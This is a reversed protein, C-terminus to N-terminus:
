VHLDNSYLIATICWHGLIPHYVLSLGLIYSILSFVNIKVNVNIMVENGYHCLGGNALGLGTPWQMGAAYHLLSRAIVWIAIIYLHSAWLKCSSFSVMWRWRMLMQGGELVLRGCV